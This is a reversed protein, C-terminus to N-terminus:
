AWRNRLRPKPMLLAQTGAPTAVLLALNLIFLNSLFPAEAHASSPHWRPLVRRASGAVKIRICGFAAVLLAM